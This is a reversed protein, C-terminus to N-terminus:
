LNIYVTSLYKRLSSTKPKTEICQFYLKVVSFAKLSAQGKLTPMSTANTARLWLEWYKGWISFSAESGWADTNLGAELLSVQIAVYTLWSFSISSDKLWGVSDNFIM